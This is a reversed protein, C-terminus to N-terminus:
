PCQLTGTLKKTTTDYSMGSEISAFTAGKTSCCSIVYNSSTEGNSLDFNLPTMAGNLDINEGKRLAEVAEFIHLPGVDIGKGPPVLRGMARALDPGTLKEGAVYAAYALLYMGDYTDAPCSDLTVKESFIENFRMTLQANAATTSPTSLGLFRGRREKTTLVKTLEKGFELGEPFLTYLKPDNAPRMTELIGLVRETVEDPDCLVIDPRFAQMARATEPVEARGDGDRVVFEHFNEGNELVSKGNFRVRELLSGALSQGVTNGRRLLGVRIPADAATSRAGRVRPELFDSVIVSVPTAVDATSLTTRWVLRPVGVPHPIATILASSNMSALMLVRKPIFISTALDIVEQSSAFGIVAPVGVDDV